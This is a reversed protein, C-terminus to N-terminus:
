EAIGIALADLTAVDPVGIGGKDGHTYLTVHPPPVPLDAGLLRGLSTHFGAMAPLSIMEIVSQAGAGREGRTGPKALRMCCGDRVCRWDQLAFARAIDSQELRGAKMAAKLRAGLEKGVLTVHLESKPRFRCGHLLLPKRRVPWRNGPVPLVVTGKRTFGPWAQGLSIPETM